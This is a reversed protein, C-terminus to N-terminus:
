KRQHQNHHKASRYGKEAEGGDQNRASSGAGSGLERFGIIEQMRGNGGVNGGAVNGGSNMAERRELEAIEAEEKKISEAEKRLSDLQDDLETAKERFAVLESKKTNVERRLCTNSQRLRSIQPLLIM